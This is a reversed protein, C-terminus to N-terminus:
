PVVDYSGTVVFYGQATDSASSQVCVSLSYVDGIDLDAFIAGRVRMPIQLISSGADALPDNGTTVLPIRQVMIRGSNSSEKATYKIYATASPDGYTTGAVSELKITSGIPLTIGTCANGGVSSALAKAYANFKQPPAQLLSVQDSLQQLSKMSPAPPGPPTLSGQGFVFSLSAIAMLVALSALALRLNSLNRM